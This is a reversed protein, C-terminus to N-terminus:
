CNTEFLTAFTRFTIKIANFYMRSQKGVYMYSM